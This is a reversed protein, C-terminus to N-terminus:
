TSIVLFIVTSLGLRLGHDHSGPRGNRAALEKTGAVDRRQTRRDDDLRARLVVGHADGEDFELVAEILGQSLGEPEVVLDDDFLVNRHAPFKADADQCRLVLSQPHEGNHVVVERGIPRNPAICM